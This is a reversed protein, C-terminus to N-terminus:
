IPLTKFKYKICLRKPPKWKIQRECQKFYRYLSYTSRQGDRKFVHQVMKYYSM